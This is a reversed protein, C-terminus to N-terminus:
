LSNGVLFAKNLRSTVPAFYPTYASAPTHLDTGLLPVSGKDNVTCTFSLPLSSNSERLVSATIDQFHAAIKLAEPHPEFITRSAFFRRVAQPLRPPSKTFVAGSAVAVSSASVSAKALRGKKGKAPPAVAQTNTATTETAMTNPSRWYPDLHGPTWAPGPPYKGKAFEEAEWTLPYKKAFVEPNGYPTPPSTSM